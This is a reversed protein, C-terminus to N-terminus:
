RRLLLLWRLLARAMGSGFQNKPASAALVLRSWSLRRADRSRNDSMLVLFGAIFVDAPPRINCIVLGLLLGYLTVPEPASVRETMQPMCVGEILVGSLWHTPADELPSWLFHQTLIAGGRVWVDVYWGSGGAMWEVELPPAFRFYSWTDPDFVQDLIIQGSLIRSSEPETITGSGSLSLSWRCEGGDIWATFGHSVMETNVHRVSLWAYQQDFGSAQQVSAAAASVTVFCLLGGLYHM